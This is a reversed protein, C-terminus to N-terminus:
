TGNSKPLLFRKVEAITLKRKLDTKFLELKLPKLTKNTCGKSKLLFRCSEFKSVPIADEGRRGGAAPATDQAVM